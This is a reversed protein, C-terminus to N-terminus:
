VFDITADQEFSEDASRKSTANGERHLQLALELEGYLQQLSLDQSAVRQLAPHSWTRSSLACRIFMVLHDFRKHIMPFQPSIREVEAYIKALVATEDMVTSM